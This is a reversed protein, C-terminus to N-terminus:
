QSQLGTNIMTIYYKGRRQPAGFKSYNWLATFQENIKPWVPDDHLYPQSFNNQAEIFQKTEDSDPDELWRYPDPM